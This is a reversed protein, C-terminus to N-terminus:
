LFKSKLKLCCWVIGYFLVKDIRKKAYSQKVIKSVIPILNNVPISFMGYKFLIENKLDLFKEDRNHTSYGDDAYEAITVEIYQHPIKRNYFWRINHHWDAVSTYSTDFNGIKDFVHKKVFIAQHCINKRTLKLCDFEGDYLGNFGDSQVQGYVVEYSTNVIFSHVSELVQNDFLYDDSGLFYLWEGKALVIGKNMADYIGSDPESVLSVSPNKVKFAEVIACTSDTSLGDMILIEYNEFSQELISELARALTAESNYTPIIISFVPKKM